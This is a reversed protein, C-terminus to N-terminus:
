REVVSRKPLCLWIDGGASSGIKDCDLPAVYLM